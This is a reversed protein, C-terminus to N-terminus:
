IVSGPIFHTVSLTYCIRSTPQPHEGIKPHALQSWNRHINAGTQFHLHIRRLHVDFLRSSKALRSRSPFDPPVFSNEKLMLGPAVKITSDAVLKGNGGLFEVTTPLGVFVAGPTRIIETM